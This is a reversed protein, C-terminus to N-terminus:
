GALGFLEWKATIITFHPESLSKVSPNDKAYHINAITSGAVFTASVLPKRLRSAFNKALTGM